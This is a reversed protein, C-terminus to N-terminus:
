GPKPFPPTGTTVYAAFARLVQPDASHFVVTGGGRPRVVLRPTILGELFPIAVLRAQTIDQWAVHKDRIWTQHIGEADVRTRSRWMWVLSWVAMFTAVGIVAATWGNWPVSLWETRSRIGWHMLGAVLASALLRV